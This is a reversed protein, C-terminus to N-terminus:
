TTKRATPHLTTRPRVTSTGTGFGQYRGSVDPLQNGALHSFLRAATVSGSRHDVATACTSGGSPSSTPMRSSDWPAPGSNDFRSPWQGVIAEVEPDPSVTVLDAAADGAVAHLTDLM